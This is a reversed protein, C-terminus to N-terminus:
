VKVAEYGAEAVAAVIQQEDVEGAASVVLRGTAASVEVVDLGDLTAIESRIAQECHGCTMGQVQFTTNSM